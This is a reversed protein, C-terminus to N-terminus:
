PMSENYIPSDFTYEVIFCNDPHETITHLRTKIDRLPEGSCKLAEYAEDSNEFIGKPTHLLGDAKRFLESYFYKGNFGYFIYNYYSGWYYNKRLNNQILAAIVPYNRMANLAVPSFRVEDNKIWVSYEGELPTLKNLDSHMASMRQYVYKYQADIANGYASSEIILFYTTFGIGLNIAIKIPKFGRDICGLFIISAIVGFGVFVRPMFIPNDLILYAGTQLLFAVIIVSVTLFLTLIKNIKSRYVAFFIFVLLLYRLSFKLYIQNLNILGSLITTPITLTKNLNHKISNLLDNSVGTGAYGATSVRLLAIKFFILVAIFCVASVLCFKFIERWKKGDIAMELAIFLTMIIFVGNAAQYTITMLLICFISIVAFLQLRKRFLFPFIMCLLAIAMFPSDFKFSMNELYFPSLGVPTVALVSIFSLKKAFIKILMLSVISVIALAILQPIPSIDTNFTLDMHIIRTLFESGYRSFGMAENGLFGPIGDVARRMDDKYSINARFLAFYGVLYIGYIMAFYKKFDKDFFDRCIALFAKFEFSINHAQKKM